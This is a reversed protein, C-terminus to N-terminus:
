LINQDMMSQVADTVSQELQIYKWQAGKGKSLVDLSVRMDWGTPHVNDPLIRSPNGEPVRDRLSGFNQRIFNVVLV